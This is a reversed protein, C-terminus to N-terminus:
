RGTSRLIAETVNGDTGDTAVVADARGGCSDILLFTMEFDMLGAFQVVLQLLELVPQVPLFAHSQGPPEPLRCSAM